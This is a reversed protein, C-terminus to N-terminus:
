LKQAVVVNCFPPTKQSVFIEELIYPQKKLVHFLYASFLVNPNLEESISYFAKLHFHLIPCQLFVGALWCWSKLRQYSRSLMLSPVATAAFCRTSQNVGGAFQVLASILKCRNVVAVCTIPAFPTSAVHAAHLLAPNDNDVAPSYLIRHTGSRTQSHLCSPNPRKNTGCDLAFTM